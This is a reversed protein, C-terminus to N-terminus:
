DHMFTWSFIKAKWNLNSYIKYLRSSMTSITQNLIIWFVPIFVEYAEAAEEWLVIHFSKQVSGDM